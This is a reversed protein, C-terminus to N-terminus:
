YYLLIIYYEGLIPICMIKKPNMPNMHTQDSLGFSSCLQDVARKMFFKPSKKSFCIAWFEEHFTYIVEVVLLRSSTLMTLSAMDDNLHERKCRHGVLPKWSDPYKNQATRICQPYKGGAIAPKQGVFNVSSLNTDSTCFKYEHEIVPM